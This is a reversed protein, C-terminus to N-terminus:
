FVVTNSVQRLRLDQTLVHKNVNMSSQKDTMHPVRELISHIDRCLFRLNSSFLPTLHM